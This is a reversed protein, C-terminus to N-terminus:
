RVPALAVNRLHRSQAGLSFKYPEDGRGLELVRVGEAVAMQAAQALLLYSPSYRAASPQYTSMYLLDAG